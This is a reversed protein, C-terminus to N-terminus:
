FRIKEWKEFYQGIFSMLMSKNWVESQKWKHVQAFLVDFDAKTRPFAKVQCDEKFRKLLLEKRQQERDQQEGYLRRSRWLLYIYIFFTPLVFHLLQIFKNNFITIEFLIFLLVRLSIIRYAIDVNHSAKLAITDNEHSVMKVFIWTIIDNNSYRVGVEM